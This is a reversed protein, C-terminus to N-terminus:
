CQVSHIVLTGSSELKDRGVWPFLSFPFLEPSDQVGAGLAPGDGAENLDSYPCGWFVLKWVPHVRVTRSFLSDHTSPSLGASLLAPFAATPCGAALRHWLNRVAWLRALTRWASVSTPLLTCSAKLAGLPRCFPRGEFCLKCAPLGWAQGAWM